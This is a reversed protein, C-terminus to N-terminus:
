VLDFIRKGPPLARPPLTEEPPLLNLLLAKYRQLFALRKRLRPWPLPTHFCDDVGPRFALERRDDESRDVVIFPLTRLYPNRQLCNLLLFNEELLQDLDVFLAEPLEEPNERSQRDLWIFASYANPFFSPEGTLKNNPDFTLVSEEGPAFGVFVIPKGETQVKVQSYMNM